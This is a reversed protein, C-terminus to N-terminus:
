ILPSLLMRYRLEKFYLDSAATKRYQAIAEARDKAVKKLKLDGYNKLVEDSYKKAVKLDFKSRYDWMDRNAKLVAITRKQVDTPNKIKQMKQLKNEMERYMMSSYTVDNLAQKQNAVLAKKYKKIAKKDAYYSGDKQKAEGVEKGKGTYGKPYPQYRRIGWHMGKVGHHMLATDTRVIYCTATM